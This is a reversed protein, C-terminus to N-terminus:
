DWSYDLGYFMVFFELVIYALNDYYDLLLQVCHLTYFRLRELYTLYIETSIAIFFKTPHQINIQNNEHSWKERTLVM